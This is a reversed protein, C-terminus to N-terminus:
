KSTAISLRRAGLRLYAESARLGVVSPTPCSDAVPVPEPVPPAEPEVVPEPEPEGAPEPEETLAPTPDPQYHNLIRQELARRNFVVGVPETAKVGETLPPDILDAFGLELAARADMWTEADMLKALKARSMGTKAQYANIISEKVSGLMEIARGLEDSDGMALTAPNHIMLMSVPSMIVQEGAMAIVSAASAALGDVRVTVRGPYACLMNYIQAAAVVDGGPSNIWVTIDGSGASLEQAFLAPTIDDDFWTEEAIVGDIHLVRADPVDPDTAEDDVPPESWNWFRRKM